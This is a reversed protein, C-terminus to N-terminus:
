WHCCHYQFPCHITDWLFHITELCQRLLVLSTIRLAYKIGNSMSVVVSYEKAFKTNSTALSSSSLTTFKSVWNDRCCPLPNAFSEGNPINLKVGCWFCSAKAHWSTNNLTNYWLEDLGDMLLPHNFVNRPEHGWVQVCCGVYMSNVVYPSLCGFGHWQLKRLTWPNVVNYTFMIKVFWTCSEYTM